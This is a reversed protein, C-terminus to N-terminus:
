GNYQNMAHIVGNVVWYEVADAAQQIAQEELKLTAEGGTGLVWDVADGPARGIGIRLRPFEKSGLAMIISEMGKHGGSGGSAKIRLQGPEIDMDDHVVILNELKLKYFRLLPGVAKGSLNMYTLPKVLLVKEGNIVTHGLIADYKSEEKQLPHRAALENLVRFGLNHRTYRYKKGPNGLGVVIKM